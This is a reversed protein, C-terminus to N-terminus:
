QYTGSSLFLFNYVICTGSQMITQKRLFDALYKTFRFKPFLKNLLSVPQIVLSLLRMKERIELLFEVGVGVVGEGLVYVIYTYFWQYLTNDGSQYESAKFSTCICTSSSHPTPVARNEGM